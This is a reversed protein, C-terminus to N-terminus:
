VHAFVEGLCRLIERVVENAIVDDDERTRVDIVSQLRAEVDRLDIM